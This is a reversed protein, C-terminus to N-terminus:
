ENEAKPFLPIQVQVQAKEVWDLLTNTASRTIVTNEKVDAMEEKLIATDDKLAGLDTRLGEQAEEIGKLREQIPALKSDMLEAFAQLDELELM